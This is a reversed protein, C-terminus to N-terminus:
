DKELKELPRAKWFYDLMVPFQHMKRFTMQVPMGIKLEEPKCDTLEATMRGGGEFEVFVNMAPPSKSPSLRDTAFTFVNAKRGIFSYDDFSDKKGCGVCIRQPPYQITGCNRCKSGCLALIRKRERWRSIVSRMEPDPRRPLGLPLLNRWSLYKEYNIELRKNLQSDLGLADQLGKINDTVELVFLDSGDGYTAFLIRDGKKAQELAACLMLLPEATGGHGVNSFLPKVLQTKPDFGLSKALGIQSRPDPGCLIVKSFHDPKLAEKKLFETVALKLVRLYGESIIFREEWSRVFLDDAFRWNDIFEDYISYSTKVEAIPNLNGMMVAVAADGFHQEHDSQPMGLRCDSATIIVNEAMEGKIMGIAMNMAITAGRLSSTIDATYTNSPLNLTAAVTAGVQKEKYPSTTSAFFVGKICANGNGRAVCNQAANVAMTLSDEDYSAIAKEGGLSRTQWAKAIIDRGLRYVPLHVGISTIGVM